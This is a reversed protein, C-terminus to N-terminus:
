FSRPMILQSCLFYHPLPSFKPHSNREYPADYVGFFTRLVCGVNEPIIETPRAETGALCQAALSPRGVM